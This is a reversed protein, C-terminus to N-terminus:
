VSNTFSIKQLLILTLVYLQLIYMAHMSRLVSVNIGQFSCGLRNERDFGFAYTHVCKSYVPRCIHAIHIHM